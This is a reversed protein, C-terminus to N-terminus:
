SDTDSTALFRHGCRSCRWEITVLDSWHWATIAAFATRVLNPFSRVWRTVGGCKECLPTHMM